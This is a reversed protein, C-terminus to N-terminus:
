GIRRGDSTLDVSYKYRDGRFFNQSYELPTRGEGYVYTEVYMVPATIELSLHEAVESDATRAEITQQVHRVPSGLRKELLRFMGFKDLDSRRIRKATAAHVHNSVYCIPTGEVVRVRRYRVLEEGPSIQFFDALHPPAPLIEDGLLRLVGEMGQIVHEEIIGTLKLMKPKRLNESIFTGQGRRRRLLGESALLSLAQRVPMKSVGFIHALELENPLKMGPALDGHGIRRRLLNAIQFYYPVSPDTLQSHAFHRNM